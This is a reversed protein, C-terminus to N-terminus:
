LGQPKVFEANLMLFNGLFVRRIEVLRDPQAVKASMLWHHKNEPAICSRRKPVLSTGEFFQVPLIPLEGLKKDHIDLLRMWFTLPFPSEASSDPIGFVRFGNELPELDRTCAYRIQINRNRTQDVIHLICRRARVLRVRITQIDDTFVSFNRIVASRTGVSEGRMLHLFVQKLFEFPDTHM